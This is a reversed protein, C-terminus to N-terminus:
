GFRQPARRRARLRMGEGDSDRLSRIIIARRKLAPNPTSISDTGAPRDTALSCRCVTLIQKIPTTKM